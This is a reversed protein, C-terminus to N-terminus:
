LISLTVSSGCAYIYSPHFFFIVHHQLPLHHSELLLNWLFSISSYGSFCSLITIKLFRIPIYSFVSLFNLSILFVIRSIMSLSLFLDNFLWYFNRFLLVPDVFYFFIHHIPCNLHNFCQNLEWWESGLTRGRSYQTLYSLQNHSRM